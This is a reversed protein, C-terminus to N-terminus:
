GGYMAANYVHSDLEAILPSTDSITYDKNQKRNRARIRELSKNTVAGSEKLRQLYANYEEPYSQRWQEAQLEEFKAPTITKATDIFVHRGNKPIAKYSELFLGQLKRYIEYNFLDYATLDRGFKARIGRRRIIRYELRM